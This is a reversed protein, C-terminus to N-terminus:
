TGANSAWLEIPHQLYGITLVQLFVQNTANRMLNDAINHKSRISGVKSIEHSHYAYRIEAMEHM